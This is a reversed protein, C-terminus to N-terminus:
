YDFNHPITNCFNCSHCGDFNEKVAVSELFRHITEQPIGMIKLREEADKHSITGNLIKVEVCDPIGNNNIDESEDIEEDGFGIEDEEFSSGNGQSQQGGEKNFREILDNAAEYPSEMNKQAFSNVLMEVGEEPLGTLRQLYQFQDFSMGNKDKKFRYRSPGVGRLRKLFPVKEIQQKTKPTVRFRVIIDSFM